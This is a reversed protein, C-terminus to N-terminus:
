YRQGLLEVAIMLSVIHELLVGRGGRRRVKHVCPVLARPLLPMLFRSSQHRSPLRASQRLVFKLLSWGTPQPHHSPPPHRGQVARAVPATGEPLLASLSSPSVTVDVVKVLSVLPIYQLIKISGRILCM